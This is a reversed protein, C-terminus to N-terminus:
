TTKVFPGLKSMANIVDARQAIEAAGGPAGAGLDHARTWFFAGSTMGWNWAVRPSCTAAATGASCVFGMRTNTWSSLRQRRRGIWRRRMVAFPVLGSPV